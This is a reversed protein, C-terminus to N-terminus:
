VEEWKNYNVGDLSYGEDDIYLAEVLMVKHEKIGNVWSTKSGSTGVFMVGKTLLDSLIRFPLPTNIDYMTAVKIKTESFGSLGLTKNNLEVNCGNRLFHQNGVTYRMM